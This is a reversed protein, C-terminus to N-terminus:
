CSSGMNCCAQYFRYFFLSPSSSVDEHIGIRNLLFSETDQGIQGGQTTVAGLYDSDSLIKLCDHDWDGNPYCFVRAIPIYHEQLVNFSRNIEEEKEQYNLTPLIRHHLGHSGFTIGNQGMEEAEQWNILIRNKPPTIDLVKYADQTLQELETANKLKLCDILQLVSSSTLSEEKWSPAHDQFYSVLKDQRQAIISKCALDWIAEFWFWQETGIMAAPLFITAPVQYKKLIPYAVQYNDLWGDDFTIACVRGGPLSHAIQEIPVVTFLRSLLDIHMDFTDGTVCLDRDYPEEPLQEVVRHYMLVICVNQFVTTKELFFRFAAGGASKILKKIVFM